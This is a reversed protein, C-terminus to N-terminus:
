NLETSLGKRKIRVYTICGGLTCSVMLVILTRKLFTRFMDISYLSHRIPEDGTYRIVPNLYYVLGDASTLKIRVYTDEPRIPYFATDTDNLTKLLKGNDGIFDIQRMNQQWAVHLGDEIVQIAIPFSVKKAELLNEEFQKQSNSPFSVGFASGQALRELIEDGSSVAVNVFTVSKQLQGLNGVSHSDDGAILWAHHGNSLAADWENEYIHRSNQVEILDYGSLFRLDEPSYGNRIRPHCLAVFRSHKKLLDIVHQKQNLNQQFVYDYWVVKPTGLALQHIKKIGYGHEYVPIYLPDNSHTTDIDMYNSISAVDYKLKQYAALVEQSTNKGNTLGGWCKAHAHFNCKHWGDSNISQYPNYFKEGYFPKPVEFTYIPGAAYFWIVFSVVFGLGCCVVFVGWKLWVLIFTPRKQLEHPVEQKNMKTQHIKTNEEVIASCM